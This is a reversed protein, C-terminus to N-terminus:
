VTNCSHILVLNFGFTLWSHKSLSSSCFYFTCRQDTIHRCGCCLAQHWSDLKGRPGEPWWIESDKQSHWRQRERFTNKQRKSILNSAVISIKSHPLLLPASLKHLHPECTHAQCTCLWNVQFNCASIQQPPLGCTPHREEFKVAAAVKLLAPLYHLSKCKHDKGSQHPKPHSSPLTSRM